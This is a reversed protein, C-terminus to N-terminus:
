LLMRGHQAANYGNQCSIQRQRRSILRDLDEIGFDGTNRSHVPVVGVGIDYQRTQELRVRQVALSPSRWQAQHGHVRILKRVPVRTTLETGLKSETPSAKVNPVFWNATSPTSSTASRPLYGPDSM